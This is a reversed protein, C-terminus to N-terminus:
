VNCCPVRKAETGTPTHHDTDYVGIIFLRVKCHLHLSGPVDFCKHRSKRVSCQLMWPNKASEPITILQCVRPYPFNIGSTKKESNPLWYSPLTIHIALCLENSFFPFYQLATIIHEIELSKSHPQTILLSCPFTRWKPIFLFTPKGWWVSISYSRGINHLPKFPLGSWAIPSNNM